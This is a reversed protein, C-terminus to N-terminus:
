KNTVSPKMTRPDLEITKGRRNVVLTTGSAIAIERARRAARRAARLAAATLADTRSTDIKANRITM